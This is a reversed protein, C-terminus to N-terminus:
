PSSKKKQARKELLVLRNAAERLAWVVADDEFDESRREWAKSLEKAQSRMIKVLKQTEIPKM